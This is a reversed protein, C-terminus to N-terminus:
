LGLDGQGGTKEESGEPQVAQAEPFAEKYKAELQARKVEPIPYKSMWAFAAEKAFSDIPSRGGVHRYAAYIWMERHEDADLKFTIRLRNM